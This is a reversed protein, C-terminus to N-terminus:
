NLLTKQLNYYQGIKKPETNYYLYYKYGDIIVKNCLIGKDEKNQKLLYKM